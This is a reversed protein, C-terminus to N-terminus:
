RFPWENLCVTNALFAFFCVKQKRSEQAINDWRRERPGKRAFNVLSGGNQLSRKGKLYVTSIRFAELYEMIYRPMRTLDGKGIIGLYDLRPCGLLLSMLAQSDAMKRNDPQYIEIRTLNKYANESITTLFLCGEKNSDRPISITNYRYLIIEAHLHIAKCVRLIAATGGPLGRAVRRKDDTYCVRLQRQSVLCLFLIEHLIEAPLTSLLDRKLKGGATRGLTQARIRASYRTARRNTRYELDTFSLSVLM